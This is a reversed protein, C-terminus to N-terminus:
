RLLQRSRTPLWGERRRGLRRSRGRRDVSGMTLVEGHDSDSSGANAAATEFYLVVRGVLGSMVMGLLLTALVGAAILSSADGAILDAGFSAAANM